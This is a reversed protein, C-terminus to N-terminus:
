NTGAPPSICPSPESVLSLRRLQWGGMESRALAQTLAPMLQEALCSSGALKSMVEVHTKGLCSDLTECAEEMEGSLHRWPKSELHYWM